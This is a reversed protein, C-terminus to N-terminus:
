LPGNPSAGVQIGPTLQFKEANEMRLPDVSLDPASAPGSDGPWRISWLAGIFCAQSGPGHERNGTYLLALVSACPLVSRRRRRPFAHNAQHWATALLRKCPRSNNPPYGTQYKSVDVCGHCSGPKQQSINSPFSCVGAESSKSAQSPMSNVLAKSGQGWTVSVDDLLYNPCGRHCHSTQFAPLSLGCRGTNPLYLPRGGLDPLQAM